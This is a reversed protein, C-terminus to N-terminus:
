NEGEEDERISELLARRWGTIFSRRYPVAVVTFSATTSLGDDDTATVTITATGEAGEPATAIVLVGDLVMATVLEPVSSHSTYHLVGGDSAEFLEALVLRISDGHTAVERDRVANTVAPPDKFLVLAAGVTPVLGEFCARTVLDGCDTTPVTPVSGFKVRVPGPAAPRMRVTRAAMHGASVSLRAASPTGNEASLTTRLRFPAGERVQVAVTAPAPAWQEADTRSLTVNVAFPAGPNGGFYAEELSALGRFVGAPLETLLNNSLDLVELAPLGSLDKSRLIEIGARSLDLLRRAALDTDSVWACRRSRRLADRVEQTRDCVGENITVRATSAGLGFEATDPEVLMVTFTERPPEIDQDDRVSIAIEAATAGAPITVESDLGDHDTADADATAPDGDDALVYALTTAADRARSLTM